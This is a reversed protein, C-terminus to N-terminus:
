EEKVKGEKNMNYLLRYSKGKVSPSIQELCFYIDEKDFMKSIDWNSLLLGKKEEQYKAIVSKIIFM